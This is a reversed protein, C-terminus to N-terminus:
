NGSSPEGTPMVRYLLTVSKRTVHSYSNDFEFLYGGTVEAEISHLKVHDARDWRGLEQGDPDLLLINLDRSAEVRFELTHDSEIEIGHNVREGARVQINSREFQPSGLGDDAPALEGCGVLLLSGAIMM